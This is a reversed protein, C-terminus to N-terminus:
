SEGIMDLQGCQRYATSCGWLARFRGNDMGAGMRIPLGSRELQNKAVYLGSGWIAVLLRRQSHLTLVQRVWMRRHYGVVKVELIAAPLIAM